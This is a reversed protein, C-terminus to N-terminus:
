EYVELAFDGSGVGKQCGVGLLLRQLLEQCLRLGLVPTWCGSRVSKFFFM